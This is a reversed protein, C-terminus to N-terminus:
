SGDRWGGPQQFKPMSLTVHEDDQKRSPTQWPLRDAVAHLLRRSPPMYDEDNPTVPEWRYVAPNTAPLGLIETLWARRDDRHDALTKGSWKRSVL